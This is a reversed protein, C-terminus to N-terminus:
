SSPAAEVRDKQRAPDPLKTVRIVITSHKYFDVRIYDGEAIEGHLMRDVRLIQKDIKIYHTKVIFSDTKTWVRRVYGEITAPEARLDRWASLALTGTVATAITLIGVFFWSGRDGGTAEDYAFFAFCGALVLTIPTWIVATRVLGGRLGQELIEEQLQPDTSWDKARPMM